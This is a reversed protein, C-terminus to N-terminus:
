SERRLADTQTKKNLQFDLDLLISEVHDALVTQGSQRLRQEFTEGDCVLEELRQIEKAYLSEFIKPM